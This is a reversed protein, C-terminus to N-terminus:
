LEKVLRRTATRYGAAEYFALAERNSEFVTLEIARARRDALWAHAAALLRRGAGCRRWAPAVFLDTIAGVRDGGLTADAFAIIAGDVEVVFRCRDIPAASGARPADLRDLLETFARELPRARRSDTPSAERVIM